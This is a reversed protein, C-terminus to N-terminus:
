TSSAHGNGMLLADLRFVTVICFWDMEINETLDVKPSISVVSYIPSVMSFTQSFVIDVMFALILFQAHDFNHM